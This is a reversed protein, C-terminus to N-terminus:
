NIAIYFGNQAALLIHRLRRTSACRNIGDAPMVNEFNAGAKEASFVECGAPKGAATV